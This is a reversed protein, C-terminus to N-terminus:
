EDIGEPLVFRVEFNGDGHVEVQPKQNRGWDQNLRRELFTFAWVPNGNKEELEKELSNQIVRFAMQPIQAEAVWVKEVFDVFDDLEPNPEEGNERREIEDLGVNRWNNFTRYSIGNGRAATKYDSGMALLEYIGARREATFKTPRGGPHKASAETESM